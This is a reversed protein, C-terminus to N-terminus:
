RSMKRSHNRRGTEKNLIEIVRDAAKNPDNVGSVSLNVVMNSYSNSNIIDGYDQSVTAISSGSPVNFRPDVRSGSGYPMVVEPGNEGVLYPKNMTMSGGFQRGTLPTYVAAAGQTM